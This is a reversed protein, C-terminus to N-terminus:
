KDPSLELGEGMVFSIQSGQPLGIENSRNVFRDDNMINDDSKTM